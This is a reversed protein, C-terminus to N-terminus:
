AYKVESLIRSKIRPNIPADKMILDVKRGFIEELHFKLDMYNDFTEFDAEFQVLIDVDSSDTEANRVFSGFVGIEKVRYIKKIRGSSRTLIEFVKNEPM